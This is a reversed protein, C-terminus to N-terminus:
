MKVQQFLKSQSQCNKIIENTITIQVVRVTLRDVQVHFTKVKFIDLTQM